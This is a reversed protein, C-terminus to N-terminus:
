IVGSEPHKPEPEPEECSRNPNAKAFADGWLSIVHWLLLINRRTASILCAFSNLSFQLRLQLVYIESKKGPSLPHRYTLDLLEDPTEAVQCQLPFLQLKPSKQMNIGSIAGGLGVISGSIQRRTVARGPFEADRTEPGTKKESTDRLM